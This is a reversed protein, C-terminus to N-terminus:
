VAQVSNSQQLYICVNTLIERGRVFAHFTSDFEPGVLCVCIGTVHALFDVFRWLIYGGVCCVSPEDSICVFSM